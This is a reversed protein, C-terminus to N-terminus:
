SRHGPRPAGPGPAQLAPDRLAPDRLAPDPPLTVEFRAGGLRGDTVTATGDHAAVLEAVIALGLGSGGADDADGGDGSRRSRAEDLRVFREFVRERDEPPVGPGDDEVGLVVRGDPQEALDFAIESRAHRAANDGLNRVVRGLGRPDARRWAASVGATGIRLGPAARRLRRVEDLVLGDLDVPRAFAGGIGSLFVVPVVALLLILTAFFAPQRVAATADVVVDAM